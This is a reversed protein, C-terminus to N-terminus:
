KSKQGPRLLETLKSKLGPSFEYLGAMLKAITPGDVPDISIKAKEAEKLLDPDSMTEMFAKQLLQLRDQPVGPPVSYPRAAKTYVGSVVNLITRAEDTKAFQMAVPVAKLDPHSKDMSQLVVHVDGAKLGSAWTPKISEWAWCGGDIEGSEAALRVKSTGSYGRVLKMPFGLAAQLLTPVDDTTSGPATGGIKIPRKSKFWDDMTKIGSAKTLACVVSDPTPVGLWGFKRGDLKAAKNGLVQQLVIPGIWNGIVTGDRPAQNYLYNAAILSGAGTRNEVVVTPKGPLHKGFHRAILRTYTDFGGGASFGVVFTVTKGKYFEDASAQPTAAFSLTAFAAPLLWHRSKM